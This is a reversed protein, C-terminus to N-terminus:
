LSFLETEEFSVLQNGFDLQIPIKNIFYNKSRIRYKGDWELSGLVEPTYHIVREEITRINLYWYMFKKHLMAFLGSTAGFMRMALETGAIATYDGDQDPYFRQNSMLPYANVEFSGWSGDKGLYTSTDGWFGIGPEVWDSYCYSTDDNIVYYVTMDDPAAPLQSFLSVVNFPVKGRYFLVALHSYDQPKQYQSNSRKREYGTRPMIRYNDNTIEHMPLTKATNSIEYNSEGRDEYNMFSQGVLTWEKAAYTSNWEWSYIENTHIVLALSGVGGGGSPSAPLDSVASVIDTFVDNNVDDISEYIESIYPDSTDLGGEISFGDESVAQVTTESEALNTIDTVGTEDIIENFLRIKVINNFPNFVFRMCFRNELMRFFDNVLIKPLHKSFDLDNLSNYFDHMPTWIVTQRLEEHDYFEDDSIVYGFHELVKKIVFCTYIYPSFERNADTSGVTDNELDWWNIIEYDTGVPPTAEGFNEMYFPAFTYNKTPYSSAIASNAATRFDASATGTFISETYPIDTLYLGKADSHFTGRGSVFYASIYRNPVREKLFIKGQFSLYTGIDLRADLPDYSNYDKEDGNGVISKNHDNLMIRFPLSHDSISNFLPNLLDMNMVADGM